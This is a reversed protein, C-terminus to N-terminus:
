MAGNKQKFQESLSDTRQKLLKEKFHKREKRLQSGNTLTFTHRGRCTEFSEVEKFLLIQLSSKFLTLLTIFKSSLRQLFHSAKAKQRMHQSEPKGTGREVFFCVFLCFRLFHKNFKSKTKITQSGVPSLGKLRLLVCSDHLRKLIWKGFYVTTQWLWDNLNKLKKASQITKLRISIEFSQEGM